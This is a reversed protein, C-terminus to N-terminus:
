VSHFDCRITSDPRFNLCHFNFILGLLVVNFSCFERFSYHHRQIWHHEQGSSVPTEDSGLACPLNIADSQILEGATLSDFRRDAKCVQLHNFFGLIARGFFIFFIFDGEEKNM